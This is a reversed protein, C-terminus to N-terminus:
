GTILSHNLLALAEAAIGPALRYGSGNGAGAFLIRQHRGVYQVAPERSPSYADCFVRGSGLLPALAPAIGRLAERAEAIERAEVRAQRCKDPTVGWQQCTYSFLWHGRQPLPALFADEIPFFLAHGQEPPRLLHLAVVKKIRIDLAATLERWCGENVWPGPCLVVVDAALSDGSSLLVSVGDARERIAEVGVGELVEARERLRRAYWQALGQVDMAHCAPMRWLEQGYPLDQMVQLREEASLPRLGACRARVQEADAAGAAVFFDFAHMPLQPHRAHLTQYYDASAASLQRVRESRGVPFHVGASYMSAGSGILGRDVLILRAQPECELLRSAITCGLIGGGIIVIRRATM